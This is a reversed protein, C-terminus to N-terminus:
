QIWHVHGRPMNTAGGLPCSPKIHFRYGEPNRYTRDDFKPCGIIIVKDKLFERRFDLYIGEKLEM